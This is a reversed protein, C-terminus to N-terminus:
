ASNAIPGSCNPKMTDAVRERRGHAAEDGREPDIAEIPPARQEDQVAAEDDRGREAPDRPSCATARPV